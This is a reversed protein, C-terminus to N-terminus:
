IPETMDMGAIKKQMRDEVTGIVYRSSTFHLSRAEIKWPQSVPDSSPTRRDHPAIPQTSNKNALLIAM